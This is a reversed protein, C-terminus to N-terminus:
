SCIFNIKNSTNTNWNLIMWKKTVSLVNWYNNTDTQFIKNPVFITTTSYKSTCSQSNVERAWESTWWSSIANFIIKKAYFQFPIYYSNTLSTLTITIETYTTTTADALHNTQQNDLFNSDDWFWWNYHNNITTTITTYDNKNINLYYYNWSTWYLSKTYWTIPSVLNITVTIINATYWPFVFDPAPCTSSNSIYERTYTGGNSDAQFYYQQWATVSYPSSFTATNWSFTATAVITWWSNKIIWRTATCNSTKTISAIQWSNLMTVIPWAAATNWIETTWWTNTNTNNRTWLLWPVIWDGQFPRWGTGYTRYTTWDVTVDSWLWGQWSNPTNWVFFWTLYTYKNYQTKIITPITWDVRAIVLWFNEYMAYYTNVPFLSIIHNIADNLSPYVTWDLTYSTWDIILDIKTISDYNTISVFRVLNPSTRTIALTDIRSIDYVWWSTYVISYNDGLWNQLDTTLTTYSSPYFIKNNWDIWLSFIKNLSPITLTYTNGTLTFTSNNATDFSWSFTTNNRLALQWDLTNQSNWYTYDPTQIVTDM